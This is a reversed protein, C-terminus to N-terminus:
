PGLAHPESDLELQEKTGAQLVAASGGNKEDDQGKRLVDM